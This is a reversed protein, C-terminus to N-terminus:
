QRMNSTVQSEDIRPLYLNLEYPQAGTDPGSDIGWAQLIRRNPRRM